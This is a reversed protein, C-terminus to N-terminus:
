AAAKRSAIADVRDADTIYNGRRWAARLTGHLIRRRVARPILDLRRAAGAVSYSRAFAEVLDMDPELTQLIEDRLGEPLVPGQAPHTSPRLTAHISRDGARIAVDLIAAWTTPVSLITVPENM